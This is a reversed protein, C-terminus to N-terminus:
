SFLIMRSVLWVGCLYWFLGEAGRRRRKMELDSAHYVILEEVGRHLFDFVEGHLNEFVWRAVFFIMPVKIENKRLKMENKRVKIESRRPSNENAGQRQEIGKPSTYGKYPRVIQADTTDFRSPM